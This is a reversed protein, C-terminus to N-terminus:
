SDEIAERLSRLDAADIWDWLYGVSINQNAVLGVWVDLWGPELITFPYDHPWETVSTGTGKFFYDGGGAPVANLDGVALQGYPTRETPVLPNGNSLTLGQAGQLVFHQVNSQQTDQVLWDRIRLLVEGRSNNFIGIAPFKAAAAGHLAGARAARLPLFQAYAGM